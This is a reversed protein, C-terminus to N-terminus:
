NSKIYKLDSIDITPPIDPRGSQDSNEAFTQIGVKIGFNTQFLRIKTHLDSNPIKEADFRTLKLM